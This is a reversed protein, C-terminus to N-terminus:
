TGSVAFTRCFISKAAVLSVSTRSSPESCKRSVMNTVVACSSLASPKSLCSLCVSSSAGSVSSSRVSPSTLLASASAPAPVPTLSIWRLLVIFM